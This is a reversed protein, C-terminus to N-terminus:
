NLFSGWPMWTCLSSSGPRAAQREMTASLSMAPLFAVASARHQCLRAWEWRVGCPRPSCGLARGPDPELSHEQSFSEVQSAAAAAGVSITVGGTLCIFDWTHTPFIVVPWLPVVWPATTNLTVVVCQMEDEGWDASDSQKTHCWTNPCAKM